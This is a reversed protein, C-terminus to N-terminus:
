GNQVGEGDTPNTLKIWGEIEKMNQMKLRVDEWRIKVSAWRIHQSTLHCRKYEEDTIGFKELVPRVVTNAADLANNYIESAWDSKPVSNDYIASLFVPYSKESDAHLWDKSIPTTSVLHRVNIPVKESPLYFFSRMCYRIPSQLHSDPIRLIRAM